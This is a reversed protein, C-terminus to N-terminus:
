LREGTMWSGDDQHVSGETLDAGSGQPVLLATFWVLDPAAVKAVLGIHDLIWRRVAKPALYAVSGLGDSSHHVPLDYRHIWRRIVGDEVCLGQALDHVTLFDGMTRRISLANMRGAVGGITRDYGQKRLQKVIFEYSRGQLFWTECLAQEEPHWMTDPASRVCGLKWAQRRVIEYPVGAAQFRPDTKWLTMLSGIKAHSARRIAADMSADFTYKRATREKRNRRDSNACRVSCYVPTNQFSSRWKECVTQCIPCTICYTTTPM